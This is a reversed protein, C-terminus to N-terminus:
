CTNDIRFRHSDALRGTGPNRPLRSWARIARSNYRDFSSLDM